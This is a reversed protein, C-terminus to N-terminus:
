GKGKVWVSGMFIRTILRRWWPVPFKLYAVLLTEDNGHTDTTRGFVHWIWLTPKELSYLPSVTFTTQEM